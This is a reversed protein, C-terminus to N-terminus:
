RFSACMAELNYRKMFSRTLEKSLGVPIVYVARTRPDQARAKIFTPIIELVFKPNCWV